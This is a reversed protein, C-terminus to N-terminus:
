NFHLIGDQTFRVDNADLLDVLYETSEVHDTFELAIEDNKDQVMDNVGDVYQHKLSNMADSVPSEGEVWLMGAADNDENQSLYEDITDNIADVQAQLNPRVSSNWEDALASSMYHGNTEAEPIDEMHGTYPDLAAVNFMDEGYRNLEVEPDGQDGFESGRVFQCYVSNVFSKLANIQEDQVDLLSDYMMNIVYDSQIARNFAEEDLETISYGQGEDAASVITASRVTIKM